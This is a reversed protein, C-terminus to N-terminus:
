LAPDPAGVYGEKAKSSMAEREDFRDLVSAIIREDPKVFPSGSKSTDVLEGHMVANYLSFSVFALSLFVMVSVGLIIIWDIYPNRGIEKLPNM